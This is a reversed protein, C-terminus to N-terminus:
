FVEKALREGCSRGNLCKSPERVQPVERNNLVDPVYLLVRPPTRSQLETCIMNSPGAERNNLQQHKHTSLSAITIAVDARHSEANNGQM